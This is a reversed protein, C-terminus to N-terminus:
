PLDLEYLAYRRYPEGCYRRTLLRSRANDDCIFGTEGTMFRGHARQHMENFLGIIAGGAFHEPLVGLANTKMETLRKKRFLLQLVLSLASNRNKDILQNYNPHWFIYGIERGNKMAYVINENKIIPKLAKFVDYWEATSKPFFFPTDALTRNFLDGLIEMERRLNKLNIERFTFEAYIRGLTKAAPNFSDLYMFYTSFTHARFGQRDFYAPYYPQGYGGDFPNPTDYRNLLFGVGYSSHGNIGALIKPLGQERAFDKATEILLTVAAEQASLAEFFGIQVAQLGPHHILMARAVPKENQYVLLPKAVCNRAFADHRYIFNKCNASLNDRFCANGQYVDYIFNVFARRQPKTDTVILHM